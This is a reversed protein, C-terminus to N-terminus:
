EKAPHKDKFERWRREGEAIQTSSLTAIFDLFERRTYSVDDGSLEGEEVNLKFWKYAESLDLAVGRGKEYSHGLKKWVWCHNGDEAAKRYWNVAEVHDQEVGHGKAYSEGLAFQANAVNQDAAKRRWIVAEVYDRSVGVGWRYCQGLNDQAEAHGQEAAKRYWKAAEVDDEPVGLGKDYCQGLVYQAHAHGLGAAKLYWLVAEFQNEATGQEGNFCENGKEFFEEALSAATLEQRVIALTQGVMESLVRNPGISVKGLSVDPRLILSHSNDQETM